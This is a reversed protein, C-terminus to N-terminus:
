NWKRVDNIFKEHGDIGLLLLRWKRRYTEVSHDIMGPKVAFVRRVWWPPKWLLESLFAIKRHIKEIPYVLLRPKWAVM